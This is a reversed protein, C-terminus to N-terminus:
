NVSFNAHILAKQQEPKFSVIIEEREYEIIPLYIKLKESRLENEFDGFNGQFTNEYYLLSFKVSDKPNVIVIGDKVGSIYGNKSRHSYNFNHSNIKISDINFHVLTKSYNFISFDVRLAIDGSQYHISLPEINIEIPNNISENRPYTKYEKSIVEYHIYLPSCTAMM